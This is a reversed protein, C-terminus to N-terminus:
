NTPVANKEMECLASQSRYAAQRWESVDKRLLDNERQLQDVEQTLQSNQDRLRGIERRATELGQRYGEAEVQFRTAEM